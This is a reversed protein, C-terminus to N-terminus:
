YCSKLTSHNIISPENSFKKFCLQQCMHAVYPLRYLRQLLKIPLDYLQDYLASNISLTLTRIEGQWGVYLKNAWLEITSREGTLPLTTPEVGVPNAM